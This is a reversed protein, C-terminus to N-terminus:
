RPARTTAMPSGDITTIASCVPQQHTENVTETDTTPTFMAERTASTTAFGADTTSIATRAWLTPANLALRVSSWFM